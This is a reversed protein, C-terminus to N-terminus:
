LGRAAKELLVVAEERAAAIAEDGFQALHKLLVQNELQMHALLVYLDSKDDNPTREDSDTAGLLSKANAMVIKLSRTAKVGRWCKLVAQLAVKEADNQSLSPNATSGRLQALEAEAAM